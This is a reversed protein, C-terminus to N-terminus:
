VPDRLIIEGSAPREIQGSTELRRLERYLTEHALGLKYAMDRLSMNVIIKGSSDAQTALYALIRSQAARINRLEHLGRLDRIQQAFLRMVNRSTQADSLIKKLAEDRDICQIESPLDAIASCHYVESFFSAEAIMEGATAVHLVVDEGDLPHRILKVRGNVIIHMRQVLAGQDFLRDAKKLQVPTSDFGLWTWDNM